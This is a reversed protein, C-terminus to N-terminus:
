DSIASNEPPLDAAELYNVMDENTKLYDVVHWKTTKLKPKKM